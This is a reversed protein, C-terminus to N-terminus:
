GSIIVVKTKSTKGAKITVLSPAVKFYEALVKVLMANAQGKEPRAKIKVQYVGGSIQVVENNSSNPKAQVLIQFSM